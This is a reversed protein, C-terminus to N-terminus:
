AQLSWGKRERGRWIIEVELDAHQLLRVLEELAEVSTDVTLLLTSPDAQHVAGSEGYRRQWYGVLRRVDPWHARIRVMGSM